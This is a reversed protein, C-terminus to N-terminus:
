YSAIHFRTISLIINAYTIDQMPFKAADTQTQSQAAIYQIDILYTCHARLIDLDSKKSSSM